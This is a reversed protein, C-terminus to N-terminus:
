DMVPHNKGPQAQIPTHEHHIDKTQKLPIWAAFPAKM